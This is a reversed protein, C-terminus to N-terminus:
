TLEVDWYAASVFHRWSAYRQDSLKLHLMPNHRPKQAPRVLRMGAEEPTRGGKHVNCKLCACVINEWTNSGGRSRPVVHDLSLDRLSFKRGCYQCTNEDRAFINRRNFKILHRPMRGYSLVRIIKPVAIDRRVTRIWEHKDREFAERFASLETWDRFDYSVYRGDEVHVIEAAPRDDAFRKFLLSFARRVSIIRLALYHANLMLVSGDLGSAGQVNYALSASFVIRGTAAIRGRPGQFEM